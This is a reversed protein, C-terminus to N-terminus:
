RGVAAEVSPEAAAIFGVEVERGLHEALLRGMRHAMEQGAPDRTGAAAMVVGDAETAGAEALRQAMVEALRPDPGLPSAALADRGDIAEAIDTGVHFGTSLLLPVVVAAPPAQERTRMRDTLAPALEAVVEAPEPHQVDVYAERVVVE